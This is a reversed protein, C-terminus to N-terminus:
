WSKWKQRTQPLEQLVKSNTPFSTQLGEVSVVNEYVVLARNDVTPSVLIRTKSVEKIPRNFICM